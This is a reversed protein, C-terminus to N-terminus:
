DTFKNIGMKFSSSPNSNHEIITRLNKEFIERRYALERQEYVKEFESLYQTFAYGEADLIRASLCALLAVFILTGKMKKIIYEAIRIKSLNTVYDYIVRNKISAKYYRRMINEQSSGKCKRRIPSFESYDLLRLNLIYM